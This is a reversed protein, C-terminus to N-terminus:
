SASNGSIAANLNAPGARVSTARTNAKDKETASFRFIKKGSSPVVDEASHVLVLNKIGSKEALAKMAARKLADYDPTNM